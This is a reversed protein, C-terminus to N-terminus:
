RVATTKLTGIVQTPLPFEQHFAFAFDVIHLVPAVQRLEGLNKSNFDGLPRSLTTCYPAM